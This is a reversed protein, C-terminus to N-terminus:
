RSSASLGVRRDLPLPEARRDGPNSAIVKAGGGAQSRRGGAFALSL